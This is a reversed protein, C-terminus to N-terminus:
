HFAASTLLAIVEGERLVMACDNLALVERATELTDTFGLPVPRSEM